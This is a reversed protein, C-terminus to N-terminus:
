YNAYTTQSAGSRGIEGSSPNASQSKHIAVGNLERIQVALEQM